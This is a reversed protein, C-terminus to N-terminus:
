NKLFAIRTGEDVFNLEQQRKGNSLYITYATQYPDFNRVIKVNGAMAWGEYQDSNILRRIAPPIRTNKIKLYSEVLNGENSYTAHVYIRAGKGRLAYHTANEPNINKLKWNWGRNELFNEDQLCEITMLYPYDDEVITGPPHTNNESISSASCDVGLERAMVIEITDVSQATVERGTFLVSVAAIVLITVNLTKM